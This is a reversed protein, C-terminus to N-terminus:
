SLDSQKSSIVLKDIILHNIHSRIFRGLKELQNQKQFALRFVNIINNNIIYTLCYVEYRPDTWFQRFYMDFTFDMFKESLDGISLIYLTVGVTVPAGGYNPRVRRDYGIQFSNLISSINLSSAATINLLSTLPLSLLIALRTMDTINGGGRVETM